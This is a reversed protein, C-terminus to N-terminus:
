EVPEGDANLFELDKICFDYEGPPAVFFLLNSDNLAFDPAFVSSVHLTTTVGDVGLNIRNGDINSEFWSSECGYLALHTLFLGAPPPTELTFRVHTIDLEDWPIPPGNVAAPAGEGDWFSTSSASLDLGLMAEDDGKMCVRSPDPHSVVASAQGSPSATAPTGEATSGLMAYARTAPYFEPIPVDATGCVFAPFCLFTSGGDAGGDGGAGGLTSHWIVYDDPAPPCDAGGTGTGGTAAGGSGDAGGSGGSGDPAANCSCASALVACSLLSASTVLLKGTKTAM